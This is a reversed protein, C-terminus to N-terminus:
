ALQAPNNFIEEFDYGFINIRLSLQRIRIECTIAFKSKGLQDNKDEGHRRATSALTNGDFQCLEEPAGPATAEPM